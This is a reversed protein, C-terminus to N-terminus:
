AHGNQGYVDPASPHWDRFHSLLRSTALYPETGGTHFRRFYGLDVHHVQCSFKARVPNVYAPAAGWKDIIYRVTDIAAEVVWDPIHARPHELIQERAEETFPGGNREAWNDLRSLHAGRHYRLDVVHRM